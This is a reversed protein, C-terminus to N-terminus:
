LVADCWKLKCVWCLSTMTLDHSQEKDIRIDLNRTSCMNGALLLLPPPLRHHWSGRRSEGTDRIEIM